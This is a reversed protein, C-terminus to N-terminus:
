KTTFTRPTLLRNRLGELAALLAVGFRREAVHTSRELLARDRRDGGDPRRGGQAAAQKRQWMCRMAARAAAEHSVAGRGHAARPDTPRRGAADTNSVLHMWRAIGVRRCGGAWCAGSWCAGSWRAHSCSAGNCCASSCARKRVNPLREIPVAAKRTCFHDEPSKPDM